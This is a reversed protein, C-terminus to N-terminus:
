APLGAHANGGSRRSVGCEGIPARRHLPIRLDAYQWRHTWVESRPEAEVRFNERKGTGCGIGDVWVWVQRRDRAVQAIMDLAKREQPASSVPKHPKIIGAKESAIETLTSGLVAMHDFSIRTIVSLDADVVNTADLRGGLGVELIAIEVKRQAFYDLVLATTAEFTSVDALAPEQAVLATAQGRIQAIGKAFEAESIMEGNVRIRERYSHLNPSTYLGTSHGAARLISELMAATSGKGKTGAILVNHYKSQPNGLHALLAWPRAWSCHKM